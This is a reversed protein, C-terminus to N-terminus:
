ADPPLRNAENACAIIGRNWPCRMAPEDSIPSPHCRCACRLSHPKPISGRPDYASDHKFAGCDFLVNEQSEPNLEQSAADFIKMGCATKDEETCVFFEGPLVKSFDTMVGPFNILM